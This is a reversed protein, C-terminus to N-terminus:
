SGSRVVIGVERRPAGIARLVAADADDRPTPDMFATPHRADWLDAAARNFRDIWHAERDRLEAIKEVSNALMETLVIARHELIAIRRRLAAVDGDGGDDGTAVAIVRMTGLRADTVADGVRLVGPPATFTLGIDPPEFGQSMKPGSLWEDVVLPHSSFADRLAKITEAGATLAPRHADRLAASISAATGNSDTAETSITLQNIAMTTGM